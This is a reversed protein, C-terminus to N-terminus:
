RNFPFIYDNDAYRNNIETFEDRSLLDDQKRASTGAFVMGAIMSIIFLLAFSLKMKPLLSVNQTQFFSIEDKWEGCEPKSEAVMRKLLIMGELNERCLPCEKLHNLEEENLLVEKDAFASLKEREVHKM